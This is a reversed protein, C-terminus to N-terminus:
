AMSLQGAADSSVIWLTRGSLPRVGQIPHTEIHEDGQLVAHLTGSKDRGMVLVLVQRASNLVPYTLTLRHADLKPVYNEVALRRQESLAASHPFLSATHGDQGMGLVILDFAGDEGMVRKLEDEYRVAAEEPALEAMFRHVNSEPIQIRSLLHEDVMRYNSDTSNPPVCREDTFFIHVKAWPVVDRFADSALREFMGRPSQGGPVAVYFAGRDAVSSIAACTFREAAELGVADEDKCILINAKLFHM